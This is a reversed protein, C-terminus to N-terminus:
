IFLSYRRTREPLARVGHNEISRVVGGKGLITRAYKRFVDALIVSTKSPSLLIVQHYLPM